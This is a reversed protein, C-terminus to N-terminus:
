PEKGEMYFILNDVITDIDQQTVLNEANFIFSARNYYAERKSLSQTVFEKIETLNKDKVLPRNLKCLELRAALEDIPVQLYITHGLRNMLEINDFFCPTGGGTSVVVNEFQAVEQLTKRELERFVTEGREAFIDNIKKRYRNEIFLDLDVFQLNLKQALSKGITTKGSGMYGILFIKQM